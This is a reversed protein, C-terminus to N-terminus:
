QEINLGMKEFDSETMSCLAEVCGVDHEMLINVFEDLAFKNMTQRFIDLDYGAIYLKIIRTSLIRHMQYNILYHVFCMCANPNSITSRELLRQQLSYLKFLKFYLNYVKILSQVGGRPGNLPLM